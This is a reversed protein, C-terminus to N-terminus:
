KWKYDPPLQITYNNYINVFNVIYTKHEIKEIKQKESQKDEFLLCEGSHGKEYHCYVNSCNYIPKDLKTSCPYCHGKEFKCNTNSCRNTHNSFVYRDCM